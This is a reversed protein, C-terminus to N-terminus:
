APPADPSKRNPPLDHTQGRDELEKRRRSNSAVIWVVIGVLLILIVVPLIFWYM